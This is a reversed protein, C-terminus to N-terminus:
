VEQGESDSYSSRYFGNQVERLIGSFTIFLRYDVDRDFKEDGVLSFTVFDTVTDFTPAEVEVARLESFFM